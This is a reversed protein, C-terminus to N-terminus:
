SEVRFSRTAPSADRQGSADIARVSFKHKGESLHKYKKPSKCPKFKGKDLKCEFSAGAPQSQFKFTASAVGIKGKPGKKIVTNPPAASKPVPCSGPGQVTPCADQTEDGYGDHDADPEITANILLESGPKEDGTPAREEGEGLAPDWEDLTTEPIANSAVQIENFETVGITDIGLQDGAQVPLRATYSYTNVAAPLTELPGAGTAKTGHIVRLRVTHSEPSGFSGGKVRWSVIVGDSPARAGGPAANAAALTSIAFTCSKPTPSLTCVRLNAENKLNSGFVVAAGASATSWLGIAAVIAAVLGLARVDRGM